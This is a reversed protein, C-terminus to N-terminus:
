RRSPRLTFVKVSHASNRSKDTLVVTLRVRLRHKRRLLRFDKSRLRLTLKFAYRGSTALVGSVLKRRKGTALRLTARGTAPEGAARFRLTYRGKHDVRTSYTVKLTPPKRDVPPPPPPPPTTTTTTTTPPPTTETTTTPPPPPPPVISGADDTPTEAPSTAPPPSLVNVYVDGDGHLLRHTWVAFLKGGAADLGTYDGYDNGFDCCSQDSYDTADSSVPTLPGYQVRTTGAQPLVARAYFRATQRTPDDRTSYLDVYAQGTSQDVAVWPFWHDGSDGIVNTGREYSTTAPDTTLTAFDLASAVYSHFMDQGSDPADGLGSCRHTGTPSLDSWGIYIRGNNPGGSHDVGISPVPAARGGPQALTPCAFPVDLGSHTSLSAVIQDIGWDASANCQNAHAAPDCTDIRIANAASYDWWAVYVKGDPGVAVDSTIYSGGQSSSADSIIAPTSWNDASDCAAANLTGGPRTDCYSIVENVGGGNAPDDWTVYLRGFTPSGASNDITMQPKDQLEDNVGCLTGGHLVPLGVNKALFATGGAAIRNVFIRDAGLKGKQCVSLGGAWINGNPDAALIPDGSPSATEDAGPSKVDFTEPFTLGTFSTGGNTTIRPGGDGNTPSPPIDNGYTVFRQTDAPDVAVFTESEESNDDSSDIPVRELPGFPGREATEGGGEKRQAYLRFVAVGIRRGGITVPLSYTGAPLGSVDIALSRADARLTGGTPRGPVYPRGNLARSGFRGPYDITVGPEGPALTVTVTRLQGAFGETPSVTIQGGAVSQPPRTARHAQRAGEIGGPGHGEEGLAAGPLALLALLAVSGALGRMPSM